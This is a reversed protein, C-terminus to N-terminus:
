KPNAQQNSFVMGFLGQTLHDVYAILASFVHFSSAQTGLRPQEWPLPEWGKETTSGACRVSATAASRHGRGWAASNSCGSFYYM